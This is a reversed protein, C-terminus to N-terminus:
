YNYVCLLNMFLYPEICCAHSSSIAYNIYHYYFYFEQSTVLKIINLIEIRLDVLKKRVIKKKVYYLQVFGNLDNRFGRINFLLYFSLM